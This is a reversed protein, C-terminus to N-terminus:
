LCTLKADLLVAIRRTNIHSVSVAGQAAALKRRMGYTTPFNFPQLVFFDVQNGATVPSGFLYQGQMSPNPMTLGTQYDLKRAEWFQREVALGKNNHEVSSLVANLTSQAAAQLNTLWLGLCLFISKHPM